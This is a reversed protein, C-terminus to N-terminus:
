TNGAENSGNTSAESTNPNASASPSSASVVEKQKAVNLIHEGLDGTGDLKSMRSEFYQADAVLRDKAAESRLEVEGFGKEWSQRYNQFVPGMIGAVISEPLHKGLVKQLTATEKTLTEMYPSVAVSKNKAAEEWDVAKMSKVHMAARGSMIEVLKEHIAMQHEQLRRKVNDFESMTQQMASQALHRRFFERIYPTLAVIFSLAQSSLALHKTTINKLGASRTAGAGLILQSSRSNFIKLTNLLAGAIESSMSPIGAALHEFQELSALMAAASEPLIYKQEDLTALRVKTDKSPTSTGNTTTGNTTPQSAKSTEWVKTSELWVAQDDTSGAQVQSLILSEHEGFDKADWKDADLVKIVNATQSEGFKTVFEKIQSDLVAKLGTGSRGSIAECEDAFLRNLTFYKLFDNLPLDANQQSRVKVVKTLQNQILDVGEGLLSSLDLAQQMEQQVSSMSRPRGAARPSAAREPDPSKVSGDPLNSTIDLLIKVQVSLRRMAESTNTYISALMNYWDEPDLARLNRALISSKEQQSLGRGGHTSASISSVADDDNSSPLQKRIINKIERLVLARFATAAPITHKARALGKMEAELEARLENGINMYGPFASPMRKQGPKPRNFSSGWRELTTSTNTKEVHRRLDNLLSTHFRDEYGKGIRFRIQGLDEFAGDLAKISSLDRRSYREEIVGNRHLSEKGRILREVDDLNDLVGDIEGKDVLDECERVASVIDELQMIAEALKRVNERRQKLNVVKLGDMAMEKDLKALDKRLKQIREISGEAEAHLERLSGLASFFSKSATSISSILHVEVTDMYWSLKEQLIANTALSKRGTPTAKPDRVLEANESVIDFTRPNELHFDDESYVPPITSLPTVASRKQASARRKPSPTEVPSTLLSSTSSTRSVGPRRALAAQWEEDRSNTRDRQFLATDGDSESKARQFAEYLSGVQALYPHFAKSEIHPINTLAVPPIDRQTPAKYGSGSLPAHAQLGTRQIPHQLLTSIANQGLEPTANRNEATNLAGGISTMSSATSGRHFHGRSPRPQPTLPTTPFPYGVSPSIATPSAFTDQSGRQPSAM